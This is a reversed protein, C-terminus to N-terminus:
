NVIVFRETTERASGELQPGAVLDDAFGAVSWFGNATRFFQSGVQNQEIDAERPQVTDGGSLFYAFKDGFGFDDEYALFGIRVYDL